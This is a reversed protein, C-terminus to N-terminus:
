LKRAKRYAKLKTRRELVPLNKLWAFFQGPNHAERMDWLCTGRTDHRENDRLMPQRVGKGSLDACSWSPPPPLLTTNM